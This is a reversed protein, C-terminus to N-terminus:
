LSEGSHKVMALLHQQEHNLETNALLHAMGLVANMPTRIEHSMNALFQSKAISAAEALNKAEILYQEQRALEEANIESELIRALDLLNIRDQQSFHRPAPDIICLTGLPLRRIGYVPVGAYFRIFPAGTVLPNDLFDPHQSADEVVFVDDQLIAHGCFSIARPTECADLGQRSKFWQRESDVLSLLAIETAFLQKAIRTIRDFREEAPTDLLGLRLLEAHRVAENAPIRPENM